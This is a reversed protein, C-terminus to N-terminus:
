QKCEPIRSIVGDIALDSIEAKGKEIGFDKLNYAEPSFGAQELIKKACSVICGDLAIIRESAKASEVMGSVKAGIGALCYMKAKGERSMKRAAKDALEGVDACGSCPFILTGASKCSCKKEEM